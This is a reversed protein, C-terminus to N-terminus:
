SAVALAFDSLLQEDHEVTSCDTALAQDITKTNM